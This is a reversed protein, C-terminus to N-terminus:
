GKYYPISASIRELFPAFVIDCLSVDEGLFYPGESPKCNSNKDNGAPAALADEVVALTSFFAPGGNGGRVLWDLWDGFLRRELRLLAAHRAAAAPSKDSDPVLPKNEPFARELVEAIVASETYFRGDLELAPLLGSPVLSLYEKTKPGYCRMNEKRVVYPIKKEELQIFVKQCYPCWAAHDSHYHISPHTPSSISLSDSPLLPFPTLLSLILVFNLYLFFAREKEKRKRDARWANM